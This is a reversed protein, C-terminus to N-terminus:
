RVTWSSCSVYSSRISNTLNSHKM